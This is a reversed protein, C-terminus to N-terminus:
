HRFELWFVWVVSCGVAGFMLVLFGWTNVWTTWIGLCGKGLVKVRMTPDKNYPGWFLTGRIKPFEWKSQFRTNQKWSM